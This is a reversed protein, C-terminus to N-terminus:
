SNETFFFLLRVKFFRGYLGQEGGMLLCVTVLMNTFVDSCKAALFDSIEWSHVNSKMLHGSLLGSHIM